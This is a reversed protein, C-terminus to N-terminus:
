VINNFLIANNLVINNFLVTNNIKLFLLQLFSDSKKENIFLLLIYFFWQVSKHMQFCVSFFDCRCLPPGILLRRFGRLVM